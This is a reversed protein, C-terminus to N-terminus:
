EGARGTIQKVFDHTRIGKHGHKILAPRISLALGDARILIIYLQKGAAKRSNKKLNDGRKPASADAGVFMGECSKTGLVEVGHHTPNLNRFQQAQSYATTEINVVLTILKKYMCQTSDAPCRIYLLHAQCQLQQM